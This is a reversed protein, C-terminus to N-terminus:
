SNEGENGEGTDDDTPKAGQSTHPKPAQEARLRALKARVSEVLRNRQNFHEQAVRAPDLPDRGDGNRM